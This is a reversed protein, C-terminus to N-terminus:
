CRLGMRAHQRHLLQGLGIDMQALDFMSWHGSKACLPCEMVSNRHGSNPTFCVNSQSVEVDAKSGLRVHLRRAQSNRVACIGILFTIDKEYCGVYDRPAPSAMLRRSNM